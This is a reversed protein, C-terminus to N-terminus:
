TLISVAADLDSPDLLGSYDVFSNTNGSFGPRQLAAFPKSVIFKGLGQMARDPNIDDPTSLYTDYFREHVIYCHFGSFSILRNGEYDRNYIGALYIDFDEPITSIFRQWDGPKPFMVDDEMVCVMPLCEKKAWEIIQKHSRNIAKSVPYDRLGEWIKYIGIGQTDLEKLLNTLKSSDNDFFDTYIINVFAPNNKAM